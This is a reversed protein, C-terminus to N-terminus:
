ATETGTILIDFTFNSVGQINESVMLTMRVQVVDGPQLTVGSYDWYLGIYSKAGQPGWNDTDLELTMPVDGTNKVYVSVIREGGPELTQWDISSVEKVCEFEWYVGINITVVRGTAGIPFVTSLLGYISDANTVVLGVALAIGLIGFVRRATSSSDGSM